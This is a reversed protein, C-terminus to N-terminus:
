DSDSEVNVINMENAIARSLREGARPSLSQPRTSTALPSESRRNNSQQNYTRNYNRRARNLNSRASRVSRARNQLQENAAPSRSPRPNPRPSRPIEGSRELEQLINWPRFPLPNRGIRGYLLAKQRRSIFKGRNKIFRGKKFKEKKQEVDNKDDKVEEKNTKNELEVHLQWNHCQITNKGHFVLGLGALITAIAITFVIWTHQSLTLTIILLTNTILVLDIKFRHM